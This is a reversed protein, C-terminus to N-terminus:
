DLASLTKPLSLSMPLTWGRGSPRRPGTSPSGAELSQIDKGPPWCQELYRVYEGWDFTRRDGLRRPAVNPSRFANRISV